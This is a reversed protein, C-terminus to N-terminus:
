FTPIKELYTSAKAPQDAISMKIRLRVCRIARDEGGVVEQADKLHCTDTPM